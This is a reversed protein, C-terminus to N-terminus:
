PQHTEASSEESECSLRCIPWPNRRKKKFKGVGSQEEVGWRVYCYLQFSWIVIERSSRRTSQLSYKGNQLLGFGVRTFSVPIKRCIGQKALVAGRAPGARNVGASENQHFYNFVFFSFLLWMYHFIVLDKKVGYEPLNWTMKRDGLLQSARNNDWQQKKKKNQKKILSFNLIKKYDSFLFLKASVCVM